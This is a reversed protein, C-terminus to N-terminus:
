VIWHQKKALAEFAQLVRDKYQLELDPIEKSFFSELLLGSNSVDKQEQLTRYETLNKEWNELIPATRDKLLEVFDKDDCIKPLCEMIKSAIQVWAQREPEKKGLADFPYLIINEYINIMTEITTKPYLSLVPTPDIGYQVAYQVIYFIATRREEEDSSELNKVFFELNSKRGSSDVSTKKSIEDLFKNIAKETPSQKPATLKGFVDEVGSFITSAEKSPFNKETLNFLFSICKKPFGVYAESKLLYRAQGYEICNKVVLVESAVDEKSREGSIVDLAYKIGLLQVMKKGAETFADKNSEGEFPILESMEIGSLASSLAEQHAKPLDQLPLIGEPGFYFELVGPLDKSSTNAFIDLMYDAFKQSDPLTDFFKAITDENFGLPALKKNLAEALLYELSVKNRGKYAKCIQMKQPISLLESNILGFIEKDTLQKVIARAGHGELIKSFSAVNTPDLHFGGKIKLFPSVKDVVQSTVKRQQAKKISLSRFISSFASTKDIIAETVRSVIRGNPSILKDIQEAVERLRVASIPEM